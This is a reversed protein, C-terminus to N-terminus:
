GPPVVFTPWVSAVPWPPVHSPPRPPRPLQPLTPHPVPPWWPSPPHTPEPPLSPPVPPRPAPASETPPVPRTPPRRGDSRKGTDGSRRRHRDSSLREAAVVPAAAAAPPEASPTPVPSVIVPGTPPLAIFPMASESVGSDGADTPTGAGIAVLIPLSAMTALM